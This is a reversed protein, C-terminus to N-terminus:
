VIDTFFLAAVVVTVVPILVLSARQQWWQIPAQFRGAERVAAPNTAM